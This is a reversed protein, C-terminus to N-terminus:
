RGHIHVGGTGRTAAVPIRRGDSLVLQLRIEDGIQAVDGVLMIHYTLSGLRVTSFPGACVRDVTKMVALTGNFETVHLEARLGAPAKVETICVERLGWNAFTFGVIALDPPVVEVYAGGVAVPPQLFLLVTLAAAVAAALLLTKM